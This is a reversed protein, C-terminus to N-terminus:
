DVDVRVEAFGNGAKSSELIKFLVSKGDVETSIWDSGFRGLHNAPVLTNTYFSETGGIKIDKVELLDERCEDEPLESWIADHLIQKLDDDSYANAM